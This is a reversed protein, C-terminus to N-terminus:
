HGEHEGSSALHPGDHPKRMAGLRDGEGIPFAPGKTPHVLWGPKMMDVTRAKTWKDIKDWNACQHTTANAVPILSNPSWQFTILGIDAHCMSAQRLFDLCHENHLRNIERQNESLDSWYYDQYGYQYIRKICHLEHYVNLTGLYGGGEPVAVGLEERGYHRMVEPELIINEANLLKDWNEDIEPRPYGSFPGHEQSNEKFKYEEWQVADYAPSFVLNPGQQCKKSVHSAVVYLSAAYIIFVISNLVILSAYRKWFPVKRRLEEIEKELLGDDSGRLEESSATSTDDVVKTYKQFPKFPSKKERWFLSM